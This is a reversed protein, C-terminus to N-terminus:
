IAGPQPGATENQPCSSLVDNSSQLASDHFLRRPCNEQIHAVDHRIVGILPGTENVSRSATHSKAYSRVLALSARILFVRTAQPNAILANSAAAVCEATGVRSPLGAGSKANRLMSPLFRRKDSNRPWTTSMLKQARHAPSERRCIGASSRILVVYLRAPSTTSPTDTSSSQRRARSKASAIFTPYGIRNSVVASM